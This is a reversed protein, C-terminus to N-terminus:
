RNHTYIQGFIDIYITEDDATIVSRTLVCRAGSVFGICIAILVLVVSLLRKM